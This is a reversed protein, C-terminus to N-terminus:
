LEHLWPPNAGARSVTVNAVANAEDLLATVEAESFGALAEAGKRGTLGRNWLSNILSGMFSDGAGVTDVVTIDDPKRAVHVGNRTWAAPGLKGRTLVVLGLSGLAFWKKLVEEVPVGPYLWELDEDSAKILDASAVFKEVLPRTDDASEMISPRANPDYSVLATEHARTVAELVAASGPKLTAGLSGSHVFVANAPVPIPSPISWDIDFEYTASGSPAVLALATATHDAGKSTEAVTVSSEDLHDLITQGYRDDALWTVLEVPRGLRGLTLAVNLPSGGPHGVPEENSGAPKVLDMLAEGIMLACDTM